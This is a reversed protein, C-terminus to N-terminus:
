NFIQNKSLLRGNFCWVLLVVLSIVGSIKFCFTTTNMPFVVLLEHFKFEVEYIGSTFLSIQFGFKVRGEAEHFKSKLNWEESTTNIRNREFKM